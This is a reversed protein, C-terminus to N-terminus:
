RHENRERAREIARARRYGFVVGVGLLAVAFAIGLPLVMDLLVTVLVVAAFYAVCELLERAVNTVLWVIARLGRRVAATLEWGDADARSTSWRTM